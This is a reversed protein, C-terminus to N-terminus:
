SIWPRSPARRIAHESGFQGRLRSSRGPPTGGRPTMDRRVRDLPGAPRPGARRPDGAAGEGALTRGRDDLRAADGGGDEKSTHVGSCSFTVWNGPCSLGTEALRRNLQVMCGGFRGDGTTLTRVAKGEVREVAGHATVAWFLLPPRGSAAFSGGVKRVIM